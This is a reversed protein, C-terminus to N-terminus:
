SVKKPERLPVLALLIWLWEMIWAYFLTNNFFSHVVVGAFSALFLSNYRGLRAMTFLLYLYAGLGVAGTTALVLLLSSDAGAAAHSENILEPRLYGLDRQVYRYTNFGHGFLPAKTWITISQQWNNIRSWVSNERNLQTGESQINNPLLAITIVLLLAAGIFLKTSRQWLAIITFGAMYLLFSARSYTLALALYILTIVGWDSKHKRGLFAVLLGLALIAGTFGPDFFTSILRYYHDDWSTAQLFSVDPIFVYQLVGVGAVAVTALVLGKGWFSEIDKTLTLKVAFYVGTYAVFRVAYLSSIVLESLSLRMSNIILSLSMAGIWLVLPLSLPDRKVVSILTARKWIFTGLVFLGVAVDNLHIVLESGFINLRGLQGLSFLLLLLGIIIKMLPLHAKTPKLKTSM